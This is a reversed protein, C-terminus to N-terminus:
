NYGEEKLRQKIKFNCPDDKHIALINGGILFTSYDFDALYSDLNEKGVKFHEILMIPKLAVITNKAGELAELEMGEIDLKMFDIRTLSLSDVTVLSVKRCKAEAYDIKQGIYENNEKKRLEFSGFSSPKFYDLVPIDITGVFAGLAANYASANFCNNIAINGALSYYVREQAEFALVSGWGHMAKAWEITHVGINAGGDIVIVGEGVIERRLTLIEKLTLVEEPDFYSNNLIQHGVGITGDVSTLYDHRNIIFTGHGSSVLVNAVPRKQIDM